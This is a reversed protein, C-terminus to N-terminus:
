TFKYDVAQPMQMLSENIGNCGGVASSSSSSSNSSNKSGKKAITTNFVCMHQQYRLIRIITETKDDTMSENKKTKRYADAM